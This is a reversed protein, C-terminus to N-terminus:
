RLSGILNCSQMILINHAYTLSLHLTYGIYKLEETIVVDQYSIIYHM